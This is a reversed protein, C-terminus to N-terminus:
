LLSPIWMTGPRGILAFHQWTPNPALYLCIRVIFNWYGQILSCIFIIFIFLWWYTSLLYSFITKYIAYSWHIHFTEWTIIHTLISGHLGFQFCLEAFDFTEAQLNWSYLGIGYWYFNQLFNIREGTIRHIYDLAHTVVYIFIMSM